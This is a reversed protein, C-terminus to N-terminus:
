EGDSIRQGNVSSTTRSSSAFCPSAWLPLSFLSTWAATDSYCTNLEFSFLSCIAVYKEGKQLDSAGNPRILCHRSCIVLVAGSVAYGPASRTAARVLADHQSECTNIQRSIQHTLLHLSTMAIDISVEPQDVYNALHAQYESEPVYAAWGPM